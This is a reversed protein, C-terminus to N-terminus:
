NVWQIRQLHTEIIFDILSKAPTFIFVNLDFEFYRLHSSANVAFAFFFLSLLWLHLFMFVKACIEQMQTVDNLSRCLIRNSEILLVLWLSKELSRISLSYSQRDIPIFLFCVNSKLWNVISIQYEKGLLNWSLYFSYRRFQLFFVCCLQM